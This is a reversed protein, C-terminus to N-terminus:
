TTNFNIKLKKLEGWRGCFFYEGKQLQNTDKLVPRNFNRSMEVGDDLSCAFLALYNCQDRVTPSLQKARQTVFHCNHGYHRGQTALFFMEKKYHGIMEGCEDVFIACNTTQSNAMVQLFYNSDDTLIDAAWRKDLMPDLVIVGIGAKKYSHSLQAALTSKGSDTMGVILLHAM